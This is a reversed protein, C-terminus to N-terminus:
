TSPMRSRSQADVAQKCNVQSDTQEAAAEAEPRQTQTCEGHVQCGGTTISISCGSRCTCDFPFVDLLDLKTFNLPGKVFKVTAYVHRSWRRQLDCCLVDKLWGALQVFLM